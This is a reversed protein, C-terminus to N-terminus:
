PALHKVDLSPTQGALDEPRQMGIDRIDQNSFSIVVIGVDQVNQERRQATVVIEEIESQAIRSESGRRPSRGGDILGSTLAAIIRGLFSGWQPGKTSIVNLQGDNITTALSTDALLLAMGDIVTYEGHLLNTTIGSTEEFPFVLTVDAQEAFKILAKDASQRPINFAITKHPDDTSEASAQITVFVLIAIIFRVGFM